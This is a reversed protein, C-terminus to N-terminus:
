KKPEDFVHSTPTSVQAKPRGPGRMVPIPEAKAVHSEAMAPIAPLLVGNQTPTMHSINGMPIISYKDKFFILLEKKSRNYLLKIPRKKIEIKEGFNIGCFFLPGKLQVFQLDIVDDIM